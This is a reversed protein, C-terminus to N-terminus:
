GSLLSTKLPQSYFRRYQISRASARIHFTIESLFAMWNSIQTPTKKKERFDSTLNYMEFYKKIACKSSARNWIEM